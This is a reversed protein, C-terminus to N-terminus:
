GAGRAALLRRCRPCPERGKRDTDALSNSFHMVCRPDRCHSLGLTHGLEHVAEKVMRERFLSEDPPLGYFEPRLRAASVVCARGGIIAQGFIFNLGEAYLDVETLGLLRFEGEGPFRSLRDLFVRGLYQGGAPRRAERPLPLPDGWRAVMGLIEELAPPLFSYRELEVDGFPVLVVPRSGRGTM